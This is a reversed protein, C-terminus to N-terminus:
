HTYRFPATSGTRMCPCQGQLFSSIHSSLHFPAPYVTRRCSLMGILMSDPSAPVRTVELTLEYKLLSLRGFQSPVVSTCNNEAVKFYYTM